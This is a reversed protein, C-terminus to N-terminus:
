NQTTSQTDSSNPLSKPQFNGLDAAFTAVQDRLWRVDTYLEIANEPTCPVNVPTGDLLAISWGCTLMGLKETTNEEVDRATMRQVRRRIIKENIRRDAAYGRDSQAPYLDIWCAEGTAKNVLPELNVPDVITMRGIEESVKLGSFKSAM